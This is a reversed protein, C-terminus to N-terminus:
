GQGKQKFELVCSKVFEDLYPDRLLTVQLLWRPRDEEKKEKGGVKQNEIITTRQAEASQLQEEENCNEILEKAAESKMTAAMRELHSGM